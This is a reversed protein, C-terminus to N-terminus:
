APFAETVLNRDQPLRQIRRVAARQQDKRGFRQRLILKDRQALEKRFIASLNGYEVAVGRRILTGLNLFTRPDNQGVGVHKMEAHERKMRSPRAKELIQAHDDNVFGMNVAPNETGMGSVDEAAQVSNASM